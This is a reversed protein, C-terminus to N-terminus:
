PYSVKSSACRTVFRKADMKRLKRVVCISGCLIAIIMLVVAILVLAVTLLLGVTLVVSCETGDGTYGSDCSCTFSGETNTCQAKEDCNDSGTECEDIDASFLMLFCTCPIDPVVSQRRGLSQSAEKEQQGIQFDSSLTQYGDM